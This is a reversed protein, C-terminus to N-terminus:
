ALGQHAAFTAAETRNTTNTKNLINRVHNGVTRFSIFLEEAIERDTKGAAVLRLVEVERQSLGSPYEPTRPVRAELGALRAEVREMLPRMGLETSIALSEDMLTMAKARDGVGNRQLLTDAYDCCTWALEPRYGAKRCFALADEFHASAQGMNGMTQSLLGLLRRQDILWPGYGAHSSMDAYLRAASASDHREVAVISLCTTSFQKQWPHGPRSWLEVATSEALDLLEESGTIRAAVGLVTWRLSSLYPFSRTEAQLQRLYDIDARGGALEGLQLQILVKFLISSHSPFRDSTERASLWDGTAIALGLTVRAAFNLWARAHMREVLELTEKARLSAQKSEGLEILAETAWQTARLKSIPDDVSASLDIAQLCAELCEQWRLHFGQINGRNALARLEILKDNERRSIALAKDFIEMAPGYGDAELALAYGYSPLIRGADHSDPEVLELARRKEDQMRQILSAWHGWEAIEVVKPINGADVYYDFARRLSSVGDDLLALPIQAYGLGLLIDATEEDMPQEMGTSGPEGEKAALARQFHSLAEDFAYSALSREGALKSYHVLKEAGTVAEAEDFHHALEAAHDEAQDGYLEELADGIRAHLRVRRTTSLEEVLTEQILAHTFQYRGVSRPIEDIIRAALAEELLDLLRDEEAGEILLMLQRFEFERGIVSATILVQNCQASLQNLRRGIVDRLGEPIRASWTGEGGLGERELLRVVEGVFLPNGETRTHVSEVLGPPPAEGSIVEVFRGVEERDLGGLHVRQFLEERILNGLTQSLPHQRSVEVDRYLGVLLLRSGSISGALFELLLLSSRDAWHLDDLIIMVPQTRSVNKFFTTVSDFFRFRAQEPDSALPSELGPLKDRIEPVIEAIDSAVPGMESRLRDPDSQQVYSRITQVWPWYPPAGEEEYCRGWLVQAGRNEAYSALEQTTRTKGIGPEGVLMVLRGHGSLADDLAATLEAMERQRGVFVGRPRSSYQPPGTPQSEAM